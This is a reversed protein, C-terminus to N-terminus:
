SSYAWMAVVVLMLNYGFHTAVASALTGTRLRALNAVVAMTTIGLLAPWYLGTEPLHLLVFPVTAVVLGLGIGRTRAVTGFLVGRFLFEEILPAVALGGIAWAIRVALSESAATSVVGFSTSEDPPALWVAVSIYVLGLLLGVTLYAVVDGVRPRCWAAIPRLDIGRRNRLWQVALWVCMMGLLLASLLGGPLVPIIKEEISRPDDVTTAGIIGGLVLWVLTVGGLYVGILLVAHRVSPQPPWTSAPFRPTDHYGLSFLSEPESKGFLKYLPWGILRSLGEYMLVLFVLGATLLGISEWVPDTQEPDVYVALGSVVGMVIVAVLKAILKASRRTLLERSV